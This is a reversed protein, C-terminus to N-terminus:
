RLESGCGDCGGEASISGGCVPCEARGEAVLEQWTALIADELTVSGPEFLKATRGGAMPREAVAQEPTVVAAM